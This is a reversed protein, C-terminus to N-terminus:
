FAYLGIFKRTKVPFHGIKFIKLICDFYKQIKKWKEKHPGYKNLMIIVKILASKGAGSDGFSIMKVRKPLFDENEFIM